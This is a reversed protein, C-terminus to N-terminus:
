SASRPIPRGQRYELIDDKINMASMSLVDAPRQGILYALDMADKLAISGAAYVADLMDDTIYIKKRGPLKKLTISEKPDNKTLGISRAYRFVM